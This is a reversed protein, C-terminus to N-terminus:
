RKVTTCYCTEGDDSIYDFYHAEEVCHQECKKEEKAEHFGCIYDQEKFPQPLYLIKKVWDRPGVNVTVRHSHKGSTCGINFTKGTNTANIMVYTAALGDMFKEVKDFMLLPKQNTYVMLNYNLSACSMLFLSLLLALRKM